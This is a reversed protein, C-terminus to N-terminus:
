MKELEEQAKKVRDELFGIDEVPVIFEFQELDKYASLDSQHPLVSDKEEHIFRYKWIDDGEYDMVEQRIEELDSLYPLYVISRIKTKKTLIANSVLQWYEKKHEKKLVEISNESLAEYFSAFGSPYYCKIDGVWDAGMIDPTGAWCSITPHLITSTSILEIGLLRAVRKELFQGWAGARSYSDVNLSVGMKKEYKKEQVYTYFPAGYSDKKVGSSTLRYIESSTFRGIRTTDM